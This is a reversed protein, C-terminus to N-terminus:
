LGFVVELRLPISRFSEEDRLVIEYRGECLLGFRRTLDFRLGAGLGLSVYTGAAGEVHAPWTHGAYAYSIDVPELDVSAIGASALAYPHIAGPADGQSPLYRLDLKGELLTLDGGSIELIRWPRQVVGTKHLAGADDRPFWSAAFRGLIEFSRGLPAAVAATASGGIDVGEQLEGSGMPISAGAGASLKWGTAAGRGPLFACLVTVLLTM